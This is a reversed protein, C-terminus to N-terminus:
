EQRPNLKNHFEVIQRCVARSNINGEMFELGYEHSDFQCGQIEEGSELRIPDIRCVTDISRGGGVDIVVHYSNKGQPELSLITDSYARNPENSM